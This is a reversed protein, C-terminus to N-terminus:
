VKSTAGGLLKSHKFTFGFHTCQWKRQVRHKHGSYDKHWTSILITLSAASEATRPSTTTDQTQSTQARAVAAALGSADREEGPYEPPDGRDARNGGGGRAPYRDEEEYNRERDKDYGSASGEDGYRDNYGRDGGKGGYSRDDETRDRDGGYKDDRYRDGNTDKGSRDDDRYRDDRDRERDRNGAYRGDEDRGGSRSSAGYRDEDERDGYGGDTSSYKSSKSRFVTGSGRYKDRNSAAKNRVECIKKKDNLLGVLTQAKKVLGREM